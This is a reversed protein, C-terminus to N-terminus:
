IFVEIFKFIFRKNVKKNIEVKSPVAIIFITENTNEIDTNNKIM